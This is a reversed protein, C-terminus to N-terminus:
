GLSCSHPSETENSPPQAGCANKQARILEVIVNEFAGRRRCAIETCAGAATAVYAIPLLQAASSASPGHIRRGDANARALEHTAAPHARHGDDVRASHAPWM